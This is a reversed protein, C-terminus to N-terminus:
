FWTRERIRWSEYPCLGVMLMIVLAAFNFTAQRFSPNSFLNEIIPPATLSASSSFVMVVGLGMLAAATISIATSAASPRTDLRIM